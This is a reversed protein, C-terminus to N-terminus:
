YNSAFADLRLIFVLGAGADYNGDAQVEEDDCVVWGLFDSWRM